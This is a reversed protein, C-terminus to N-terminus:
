AAAPATTPGATRRPPDLHPILAKLHDPAFRLATLGGIELLNKLDIADHLLPPILDAGPGALVVPGLQAVGRRGALDLVWGLQRLAAADTPEGRVSRAANRGAVTGARVAVQASMPLRTGDRATHAAVDGAAFTRTMGAVRLDSEVEIRGDAATPVGLRAADASFGGAWIVLGELHEGGVQAGAPTIREVPRGLHLQVGRGTLIRAAGNGLGSSLGALLHPEAETLRVLVDPHAHSIAGALQVGTAGGGVIVVSPAEAVASRLALADDATRLTVAHELGDIPPQSSEAGTTVVVAEAEIRRGDSLEVVGDEVAVVSGSEAGNTFRSLPQRADREPVAGGAVAALRTVFDHHGSRDVLTVEVGLREAARAAHLGAYGGGVVLM